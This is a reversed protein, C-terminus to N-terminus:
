RGLLDIPRGKIIGTMPMDDVHIGDARAERARAVDEDVYIADQIEQWAWGQDGFREMWALTQRHLEVRVGRAAPADYLNHLEAPDHDRDYLCDWAAGPTESYTSERWWSWHGALTDFSYTHTRTYVGRWDLPFLFLPVSEVADDREEIIASRLDIGQCTGPVDLDLLSLLTPMLDLTGVLLESARPQLTGPLRMLLPVRISEVEPRLKNDFGHSMLLDGHDSTYVVLTDEALGMAELKDLLWGMARDISTTM